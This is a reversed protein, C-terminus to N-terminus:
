KKAKLNDVDTACRIRLEASSIKECATKNGSTVAEWYLDGDQFSPSEGQVPPPTTIERAANKQNKKFPNSCSSLILLGLFSVLLIRTRMSYNYVSNSEFSRQKKLM